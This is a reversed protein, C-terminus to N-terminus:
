GSSPGERKPTPQTIAKLIVQLLVNHYEVSMTEAAAKSFGHSLCTARYGTVADLVPAVLDAIQLLAESLDGSKNTRIRNTTTM